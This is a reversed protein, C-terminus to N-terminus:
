RWMKKLKYALLVLHHALFQLIAIPDSREPRLDCTKNMYLFENGKPNLNLIHLDCGIHLVRYNPSPYGISLVGWM